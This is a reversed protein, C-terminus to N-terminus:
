SEAQQEVAVPAGAAVSQAVVARLRNLPDAIGRAARRAQLAAVRAAREKETM